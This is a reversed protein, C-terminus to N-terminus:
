QRIDTQDHLVVNSSSRHVEINGNYTISGIESVQERLLRCTLADYVSLGPLRGQSIRAM